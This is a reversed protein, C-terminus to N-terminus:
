YGMLSFWTQHAGFLPWAFTGIVHIEAGIYDGPQVQFMYRKPCNIWNQGSSYIWREGGFNHTLTVIAETSASVADPLMNFDAVVLTVGDPVIAYDSPGSWPWNWQYTISRWEVPGVGQVFRSQRGLKLYAKPGSLQPNFPLPGGGGGSTQSALAGIYHPTHM